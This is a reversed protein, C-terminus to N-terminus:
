KIRNPIGAVMWYVRSASAALRQNALGTLDRFRRSLPNAPVIGTGVENSVLVLRGPQRQTWQALKEIESEIHRDSREQGLLNSIWLTICDLLVAESSEAAQALRPLISLPEEVTTWHPPRYRQHSDIRQRMEEDLAEATALYVVRKSRGALREAFRSKGSRAGGTILASQGPQLRDEKADRRENM